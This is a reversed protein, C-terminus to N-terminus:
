GEFEETPKPLGALKCLEPVPGHPFLEYLFKEYDKHEHFHEGHYKGLTMVLQHMTPHEKNENYYDRFYQILGWHTETLKVKDQESQQFAIVEAFEETWDDPNLLYGEEDTQIIKDGADVSM